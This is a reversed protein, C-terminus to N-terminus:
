RAWLRARKEGTAAHARVAPAAGRVEILVDGEINRVTGNLALGTAIRHVFPRFGVGQVTGRVLARWATM